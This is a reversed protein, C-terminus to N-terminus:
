FPILKSIEIVQKPGVHQKNVLLYFNYFRCFIQTPQLMSLFELILFVVVWENKDIFDCLNALSWAAKLRVNISPNDLQQLIAQTVDVM